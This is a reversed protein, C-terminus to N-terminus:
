MWGHKRFIPVFMGPYVASPLVHTFLRIGAATYATDCLQACETRKDSDIYHALWLPVRFPTKLSLGIAIDAFWGYPTGLMSNAKAVIVERNADTLPFNSWHTDPYESIQRIRAGGPEASVCETESIAIVAHHVQSSTFWDIVHEIPSQAHPVLGIQATYPM